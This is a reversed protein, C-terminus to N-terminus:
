IHILSLSETVQFIACDAVQLPHSNEVGKLPLLSSCEDKWVVANCSRGDCSPFVIAIGVKLSVGLWCVTGREGFKM